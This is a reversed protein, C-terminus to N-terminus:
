WVMRSHHLQRTKWTKIYSRWYCSEGESLYIKLGIVLLNRRYGIVLLNRYGSIKMNPYFHPEEWETMLASLPSNENCTVLCSKLVSGKGKTLRLILIKRGKLARKAVLSQALPFWVGSLWQERESFDGSSHLVKNSQGGLQKEGFQIFEIRKMKGRLSEKGHRQWKGKRHSTWFYDIILLALHWLHVILIVLGHRM